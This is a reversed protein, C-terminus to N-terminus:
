FPPGEEETSYIPLEVVAVKEGADVRRQLEREAL